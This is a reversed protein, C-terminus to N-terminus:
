IRHFCPKGNLVSLMGPAAERCGTCARTPPAPACAAARGCPTVAAARAARLVPPILRVHLGLHVRRHLQQAGLRLRGNREVRAAAVLAVLVDLASACAGVRSCTPSLFPRRTVAFDCRIISDNQYSWQMGHAGARHAGHCDSASARSVDKKASLMVPLLLRM